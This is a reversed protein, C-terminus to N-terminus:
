AMITLKRPSTHVFHADGASGPLRTEDVCVYPSTRYAKACKDVFNDMILRIAALKDILQREKRTHEDDFRPACSLFALFRKLPM